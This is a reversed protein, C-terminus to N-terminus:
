ASAYRFRWGQKEKRKPDGCLTAHGSLVSSTYWSCSDSRIFHRLNMAYGAWVITPTYEASSTEDTVTNQLTCKIKKGRDKLGPTSICPSFYNGRKCSVGNWEVLTSTPVTNNAKCTLVLRARGATVFVPPDAM